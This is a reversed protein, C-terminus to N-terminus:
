TAQASARPPFIRSRALMLEARHSHGSKAHRYLKIPVGQPQFHPNMATEKHNPTHIVRFARAKASASARMGKTVKRSGGDRRFTAANSRNPACKTPSISCSPALNRFNLSSVFHDASEALDRFMGRRGLPKQHARHPQMRASASDRPSHEWLGVLERPRVHNCRHLGQKAM